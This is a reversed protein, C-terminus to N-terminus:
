SSAVTQRLYAVIGDTIARAYLARGETSEMRAADNINRMNGMEVLVTPYQALNLGTLDARGFLGSSGIYDAEALGADRLADRMIHALRVAPGAQIDNLAPASYNVHFGNGGPNAGDAHISVSADPHMANAEAARQDNCPGVGSDSARSLETHVGMSELADRVRVAVDWNVSHEPYGDDAMTGTTQCDKTGGRGTPVQRSLSSDSLGSHGPDLFVSRGDINSDATASPELALALIAILAGIVSRQAPSTLL